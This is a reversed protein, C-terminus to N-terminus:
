LAGFLSHNIIEDIPDDEEHHEVTDEKSRRSFAILKFPHSHQFLKASREGALDCTSRKPLSRRTGPPHQGQQGKQQGGPEDQVMKSTMHNEIGLFPSKEGYFSPRIYKTEESINRAPV